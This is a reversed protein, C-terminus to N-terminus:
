EEVKRVDHAKLWRGARCWGRPHHPAVYLQVENAPANIDDKYFICTDVILGTIAPKDQFNETCKIIVLDGVEM